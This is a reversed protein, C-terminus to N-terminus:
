APQGGIEEGAAAPLELVSRAGGCFAFRKAPVALRKEIVGGERDLFYLDLEFRMGFTHVSSCHPILIGVSAARRELAALGILRARFGHALRAETGLVEVTPLRRLRPALDTPSM